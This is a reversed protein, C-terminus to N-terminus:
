FTNRAPYKMTYCLFHGPVLLPIIKLYSEWCSTVGGEWFLKTASLRPNLTLGVWLM